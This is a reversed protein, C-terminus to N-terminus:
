QILENAIGLVGSPINLGVGCEHKRCVAGATARIAFNASVEGSFREGRGVEEAIERHKQEVADPTIERLPRDLWVALHRECMKRYARVTAPRLDKRALLYGALRERM